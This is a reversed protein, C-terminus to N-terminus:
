AGAEEDGAAADGHGAAQAAPGRSSSATEAAAASVAARASERLVRGGRGRGRQGLSRHQIDGLKRLRLRHRIEPWYFQHLQYEIHRPLASRSPL